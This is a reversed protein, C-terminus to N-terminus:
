LEDLFFLSSGVARILQPGEDPFPSYTDGFWEPWEPVFIFNLSDCYHIFDRKLNDLHFNMSFLGYRKLHTATDAYEKKASLIVMIVIDVVAQVVSSAIEFFLSAVAAGAAFGSLVSSLWAVLPNAEFFTGGSLSNVLEAFDGLLGVVGYVFASAEAFIALGPSHFGGLYMLMVAIFAPVAFCYFWFDSVSLITAMEDCCGYLVALGIFTCGLVAAIDRFQIGTVDKRNDFPMWQSKNMWLCISATALWQQFAFLVLSDPFLTRAVGFAIFARILKQLTDATEVMSSLTGYTHKAGDARLTLCLVAASSLCAASLAQSITGGYMVVGFMVAAFGAVSLFCSRSAITAEKLLDIKKM